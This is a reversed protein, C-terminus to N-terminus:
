EVEGPSPYLQQMAGAQALSRFFIPHFSIDGPLLLDVGAIDRFSACEQPVPSGEPVQCDHSRSALHQTSATGLTIIGASCLRNSLEV